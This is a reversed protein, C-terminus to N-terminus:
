PKRGRKWGEWVSLLTYVAFLFAYWAIAMFAAVLLLWRIMEM